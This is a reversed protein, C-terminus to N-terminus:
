SSVKLYEAYSRGKNVREGDKIEWKNEEALLNKLGEKICLKTGEYPSVVPEWRQVGYKKLQHRIAKKDCHFVSSLYNVSFGQRRLNTM